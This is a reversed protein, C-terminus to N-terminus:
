ILDVKYGEPTRLPDYAEAYNGYNYFYYPTMGEDIAQVTLPPKDGTMTKRIGPGAQHGHVIVHVVERLNDPLFGRLGDQINEIWNREWLFSANSINGKNMRILSFHIGKNTKLNSLDEWMESSLHELGNPEAHMFLHHNSYIMGIGGPVVIEMKLSIDRLGEMFQLGLKMMSWKSAQLEKKLSTTDMKLRKLTPKVLEMYAKKGTPSLSELLALHQALLVTGLGAQIISFNGELGEEISEKGTLIPQHLFSGAHEKNAEAMHNYENKSWRRFDNEILMQEHNGFLTWRAGLNQLISQRVCELVLENHDGRDVLDGMLILIESSLHEDTQIRHFHTHVTKNRMPHHDLGMRPLSLQQQTRKIPNAFLSQRYEEDKNLGIGAIRFNALQHKMMYNMLGPAWGHIDGLAHIVTPKLENIKMEIPGDSPGGYRKKRDKESQKKFAQTDVSLAELDVKFRSKERELDTSMSALNKEEGTMETMTRAASDKAKKLEITSDNEEKKLIEIQLILDQISQEISQINSKILEATNVDDSYDSSLEDITERKGEILHQKSIITDRQQLLDTEKLTLQRISQLLEKLSLDKSGFVKM